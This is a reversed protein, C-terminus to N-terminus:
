KEKKIDCIQINLNNDLMLPLGLSIATHLKEIFKQEILKTNIIENIIKEYEIVNPNREVNKITINVLDTYKM